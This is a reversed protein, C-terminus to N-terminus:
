ESTKKRFNEIHHLEQQSYYKEYGRISFQQPNDLISALVAEFQHEHDHWDEKLKSEDIYDFPYYLGTKVYETVVYVLSGYETLPVNYAIFFPGATIPQAQSTIIQLKASRRREM